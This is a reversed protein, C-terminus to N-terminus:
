SQAERDDKGMAMQRRHLQYLAAYTGGTGMLEDHTGSEVIRGEAMVLIRDAMGITSFRHSILLTTRGHALRRFRTFLEYEASADLNSTPEDLILLSSDRAFARALALYQWQGGSVDFDGFRRGVFTDYGDPLGSILGHVGALRAVDEVRARDDILHQWDGYAINDAASAEYRGFSQFVFATQARLDELAVDRIDIGDFRISGADPDYLRCMLKVLTTKGAGNEGVIGAIQGQSLTFSLSRLTPQDAGPYTFWVDDFEITGVRKMPLPDEAEVVTPQLALFEILNSVHMANQRASSLAIIARDVSQRLRTSVAGFVAVDGITLAGVVVRQVIRFFLGFFVLTMATGFIWSGLFETSHLRRDRDRFSEMLARFRSVLLPGLGLMKSEAVSSRSTVLSVFYSTWRLKATREHIERYRQAALRWKFFLYPVAFPTVLLPVLPEIVSVIGILSALQLGTTGIEITDSLFKEVRAATNSRAREITERQRPSEFFELDLTCAHELIATTTRLNLEDQLRRRCLMNAAPTMADILSLLCGFVLWLVIPPWGGEGGALAVTANVLGRAFLALGAPVFGRLVALLGIAATFRASTAWALAFTWRAYSLISRLDSGQHTPDSPDSRGPSWM